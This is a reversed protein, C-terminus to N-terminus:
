AERKAAVALPTRTAPSSAVAIAEGMAEVLRLAEAADAESVGYVGPREVLGRSLVQYQLLMGQDSNDSYWISM